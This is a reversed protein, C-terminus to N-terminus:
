GAKGADPKDLIQYWCGSEDDQHKVLAFAVEELLAVITERYQKQEAPILDLMDVLAM